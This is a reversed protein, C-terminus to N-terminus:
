QNIDCKGSDNDSENPIYEGIIDVIDLNNADFAICIADELDIQDIDNSSLIKTVLRLDNCNISYLLKEYQSLSNYEIIQDLSQDFPFGYYTGFHRNVNPQLLLNRFEKDHTLDLVESLTMTSLIQNTVSM